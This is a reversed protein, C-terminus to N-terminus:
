HGDELVADEGIGDQPGGLLGRALREDGLEGGRDVVGTGGVRDADAHRADDIECCAGRARRDVDRQLPDRQALLQGLANPDGDEHVVVGGDGSEGFGM